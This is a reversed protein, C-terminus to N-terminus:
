SDRKKTAYVYQKLQKPNEGTKRQPKGEKRNQFSQSPETNRAKKYGGNTREYRNQSGKTNVSRKSSASFPATDSQKKLNNPRKEGFKKTQRETARRTNEQDNHFVQKASTKSTSRTKRTPTHAQNSKGFRSTKKRINSRAAANDKASSESQTSLPHRTFSGGTAQELSKVKYFDQGSFFSIAEGSHEARGTRGIRHTYIEANDPLNYNIVHTLQDVHLGRAAVDTAILIHTKKDKLSRLNRERKVQPMDGHIATAHIDDQKLKQKLEDVDKKTRCFLVAYLDETTTLLTKLVNYRERTATLIYSQKTKPTKRVPEPAKLFQHTPMYTHALKTIAKPMTASVWTMHKSPNSAQIITKIDEAFGMDMMEDAEDLVLHSIHQLDISRQKLLHDLVRGPTGIIFNCKGKLFHLQSRLSTGGILLPSRLTRKTNFSTIAESIQRALERTPALILAYTHKDNAQVKELLPLLYAATKGTGTAAQLITHGVGELLKPIALAQIPSPTSINLNALQKCTKAGLGLAEFTAM